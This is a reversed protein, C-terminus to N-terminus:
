KDKQFVFNKIWFKDEYQDQSMSSHRLNIQTGIRRFDVKNLKNELQPFLKREEFKIHSKLTDALRIFEAVETNASDYVGKAIQKIKMHDKTAKQVMTDHLNSYLCNEKINFHEELCQEWFHQVYHKIRPLEIKYNLGQKMKWCFPLDYHHESYLKIINENRIIAGVIM